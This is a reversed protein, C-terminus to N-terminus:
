LDVMVILADPFNGTSIFILKKPLNGKIAGMGGVSYSNLDAEM